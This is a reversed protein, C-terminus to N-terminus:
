TEVTPLIGKLLSQAFYFDACNSLFLQRVFQQRIISM